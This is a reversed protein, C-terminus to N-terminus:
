KLVKEQTFNQSNSCSSIMQIMVILTVNPFNFIQLEILNPTGITIYHRTVEKILSGDNIAQLIYIIPAAWLGNTLLLLPRVLM